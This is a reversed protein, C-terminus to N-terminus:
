VVSTSRPPSVGSVSVNVDIVKSVDTVTTSPACCQTQERDRNCCPDLDRKPDNWELNCGQITVPKALVETQMMSKALSECAWVVNRVALAAVSHFFATGPLAARAAALQEAVAAISARLGSATCVPNINRVRQGSFPSVQEGAANVFPPRVLTSQTTLVHRAKTHTSPVSVSLRM